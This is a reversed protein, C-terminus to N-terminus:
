VTGLGCGADLWGSMDAVHAWRPTCGHEGCAGCARAGGVLVACVGGGAVEVVRFTWKMDRVRAWTSAHIVAALSRSCWATM